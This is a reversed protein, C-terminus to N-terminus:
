REDISSQEEALLGDLIQSLQKELGGRYGSKAYLVQGQADIILLTPFGTVGYLRTAKRHRDMLITAEFRDEVYKKIRESNEGVNILLVEVGQDRYRRYIVDLSPMTFRCPACWTAWFEIIVVRGRLQSLQLTGRDLKELTFDPAPQPPDLPQWPPGAFDCSTSFLILVLGLCRIWRM